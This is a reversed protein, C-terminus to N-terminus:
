AAGPRAAPRASPPPAVPTAVAGSNLKAGTLLFAHLDHAFGDLEALLLRNGRVFANYALVAPIAVALGLATMILAEGV